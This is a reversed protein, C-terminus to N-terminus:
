RGALGRRKQARGVSEALVDLEVPKVQYEDFAGAVADSRQEPWSFGTM